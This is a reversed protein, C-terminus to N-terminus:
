VHASVGRNRMGHAAHALGRANVKLETDFVTAEKDALVIDAVILVGAFHRQLRAYCHQEMFEPPLDSAEEVVTQCFDLARRLETLCRPLDEIAGFHTLYAVRAGTTAIKDLSTYAAAFDLDPPPTLPFFLPGQASRLFPFAAGLADGTFIVNASRDHVCLHHRAHGPTHLFALCRGGLRVADGDPIARIRAAPVPEMPGFRQRFVEEGFVGRTSMVLFAPHVLYQVALPHALVTANPCHTLLAGTGSAHDMHAHTVILYRVQSPSLGSQRLARLIEPVAKPTNNDVIAVEGDEVLLYAGALEPGLYHCDITVVPSILADSTM